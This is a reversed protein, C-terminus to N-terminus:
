RSRRGGVDRVSTFGRLLQETAARGSWLMVYGYDATLMQAQPMTDMATHAHADIMGPMLTRGGGEIVTAGPAVSASAGIAAITNGRVLLSTPASLSTSTGNFVRVNRFVTVPGPPAAPGPQQAAGHAVLVLAMVSALVSLVCPPVRM